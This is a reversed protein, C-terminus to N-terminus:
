GITYTGDVLVTCDQSAVFGCGDTGILYMNNEAVQQGHTLIEGSSLNIMGSYCSAAGRRLLLQTGVGAKIQQGKQLTIMKWTSSGSSSGIQDKVLEVVQNITDQSVNQLQSLQSELQTRVTEVKGDIDSKIATEKQSFVSDIRANAEPVAVDTIYSLTVLPDDQSGYGGAALATFIGGALLVCLACFASVMFKRNM